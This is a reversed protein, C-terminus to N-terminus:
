LKLSGDGSDMHRSTLVCVFFLGSVSRVRREFDDSRTLSADAKM